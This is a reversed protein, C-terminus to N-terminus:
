ELEKILELLRTKDSNRETHILGDAELELLGSLRAKLALLKATTEGYKNVSFSVMKRKGTFDFWSACYHEVGRNRKVTVGAIESSEVATKSRRKNCANIRHSVLRLNDIKNNLTNGDIHDIVLSSDITKHNLIWVIRHIMYDKKNGSSESGVHVKWGRVDGNALYRKIGAVDGAYKAVAGKNKYRNVKYRLGTPSSEDYYFISNLEEYDLDHVKTPARKNVLDWNPLPNAIWHGEREKAQEKTLGQELIEVEHGGAETDVELWDKTKGGKGQNCRELRGHGVYFVVGNDKRKHLYVYSDRKYNEIM